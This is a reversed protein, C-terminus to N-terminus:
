IHILTQICVLDAITELQSYAPSMYMRDDKLYEFMFSLPSENIRHMELHYVSLM